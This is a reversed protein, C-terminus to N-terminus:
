KYHSVLYRSQKKRLTDLQNKVSPLSQQLLFDSAEHTYNNGLNKDVPLRHSVASLSKNDNLKKIM